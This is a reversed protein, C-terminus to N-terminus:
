CSLAINFAENNSNGDLRDVYNTHIASYSATRFRYNYKKMVLKQTFRQKKKKRLITFNRYELETYASIHSGLKYSTGIASM